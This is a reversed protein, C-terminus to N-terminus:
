DPDRRFRPGDSRTEPDDTAGCASIDAKGARAPAEIDLFIEGTPREADTLLAVAADDTIEVSRAAM